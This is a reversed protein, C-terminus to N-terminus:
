KKRLLREYEDHPLIWFWYLIGEHERGLARYAPGFGHVGTNVKRRFNFRATGHIKRGSNTPKARRRGRM